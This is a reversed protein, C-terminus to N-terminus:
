FSITSLDFDEPAEMLLPNYSIDSSPLPITFSRDTVNPAATNTDYSQSGTVNWTGNTYYNKYLDDLGSYTNRRQAKIESIAGSPDYYYRRVFDYWRDGECALELRREKWVDEWSISTPLKYSSIGRHRVDYFYECAKSDTTSTSNGMVAECYILYVDSLRLIHTFLGSSMNAASTGIYKQHDANDGYLNKVEQAGTNSQWQGPGAHDAYGKYVFKLINLGGCDTYFNDYTDGAMMMTAKRRVDVNMRNQSLANEGFADQLDVSPGNWGGWTDGFEDFGQIALDSQLTNQSTWQAGVTWAWSILAEGCLNHDGRFIDAYNAELKRGSNEIVDLAYKAAEALDETNRQHATCTIYSYTGTNYTTNSESFGAKTLYVKALLGEASYKDIRGTGTADKEPLLDIAKKLLIIIYDYINSIKAKHVSTATQNNIMTIPDHIIPVSGFSRVMYFYAMAKWTLCEGMCANKVSESAGSSAKINNYVASAQTNVSWLSASMNALDADSGDLTFTLYPSGGWYYNGALVEGVKFFGRQFDYWPSNYLYNVGARCQADSSYYNSTDYSDETPHDLYDSCSSLILGIFTACTLAKLNYIKM